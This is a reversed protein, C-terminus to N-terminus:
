RGDGTVESAGIREGGRHRGFERDILDIVEEASASRVDADDVVAGGPNLGDMLARLRAAIRTRQVDDAVVTPLKHELQALEVEVSVAAPPQNLTLGDLMHRTVAVSTPHDFVLTARLRLGSEASLRNRLEVASLSDFGLNKFTQRPDIAEPSAHGLVAAAHGRVFRLVVREREGEPVGALREGLSVSGQVGARRVPPRVLDQLLPVLGGARAQGHLAAADLWVPLVLAEELGWATDLLELAQERALARVGGRAIRALDIEGLRDAMGDAQAWPGWAISTAALGQARRSAALADLFANAAAYNGQGAGGFTGAVSSFLVFARLDMHRTLEHLHWGGDVKPALAREVRGPTLSGLVGDDLVGAAHVVASLPHRVPVEELLEQLQAPDAVDCAAIRVDAGLESLETALASAGQAQLGRRSALLLHRVGHETVLHRAVAAGLGGTGGTILVTGETESTPAPGDQEGAAVGWQSVGAAAARGRDTHVRALRPILVAGGRVAVQSEGCALAEPLAHWSAEEGDVDVLVFRDPNELQASRVLGWVAGGALDSVGEGTRAAVGDRTLVALRSAAFREDALWRQLVDLVRQVNARVRRPVGGDGDLAGGGDEGGGGAVCGTLVIAPVGGGGDASRALSALDVHADLPVGARRLEEELTGRDARPAGEEVDSMREGGGVVAWRIASGSAATAPQVERWDVVYLSERHGGAVAGLQGASAARLTLSEVSAVPAGSEDAVTVSIAEAGVFSLHVRLVAAGTAHLTVGNWSFPLWVQEAGGGEPALPSAALAHMAADLLAPHVGFRAAEALQAEPLAVEAFVEEGRRWAAQLGQFAPGYELGRGSQGDYLGDVAVPEADQPPWVGGAVCPSAEPAAPETPALTGRAHETWEEGTGFGDIAADEPRSHVSLARRGSEDPAEIAVRLQVGREVDLVLPASLTLEEVQRCGLRGGIHLAIELFATAPFLVRGMVVHDALWPHADLSLRGTFLWADEALAVAAGLLPHDASVQGVAGADDGRRGTSGLWYRERQFAYSPLGVRSAGSGEFIRAWDVRVGRVWVGALGALLTQVEGRGARATAVAAFSSEEIGGDGPLGDEGLCEHVMASLVGDPGLELFSGVGRGRASRVGDCFRVTERVHRVWYAPDCLQAASAVEGTVNSVVPTHPEGFAVEAAVRGFEELMDDMRPSHFAHSVRLWRTKAGQARWAEALESVAERDGSFVVSAPGNVAALAVRGEFGTLSELAERESAGVAVMAGGAPLDGMLRGRAAVLRCADALSFVGAVYAAVLEGISHGMVLDPRVGLSEVLRCMALELAFLGCQAHLTGDLREWGPSQGDLAGGAWEGDPPGGRALSVDAEAGPAPDQDDGFVVDRLRCGLQPDLHVCVEDFADRFVAFAKYLERGMGVRQAGQGTFLFAIREGGDAGFAGVGAAVGRVVGAAAEGRALARLGELLGDRDGDLVVARDELAARGALSVGVDIAELGLDGGVFEALRAAQRRLGREGRGSVVWPVVGGGPAGVGVLAEAGAGEGAPSGSAGRDGASDDCPAEELIVHANTGSAGFSSVGARRPEGGREWAVEETLLSVRGSSWDVQTSPEDVHLTRPLRERQLAMVIKIVGAAGSATVTHGINSKVSGLWLPAGERGQGYTALLAQAEIPDGLRTGTGHGEVADVQAPSLGANALAQLIVRQQSPGNPATLGNSAGDQNVASGRVLALVRHGNRRADALPELLLVGMGEGWGVGDAADAYPKCRGDPAQGRQRSFEVFLEPTSLVTVGGTLAMSCEGGRLAQCAMHLAVLASSCATDVSVAPGELGLTYAVRGSTVSSPSGTMGYGALGESGAPAAWLGLGYETRSTGVFVGTSSGRLSSPDIDAHELAEWCGELLLRQQPDMALAERPGIGFFGADFEAVDYLFGGERAYSTGPRALDPDYLRGLDWGRDTPFEGIADRGACVFEWLEEPSRAPGPYRCSMGVIAVPEDAPAGRVAATVRAAPAGRVGGAESVLHEALVVPTPYDFVLTAPLRLGTAAALRNRLEVAALSDFGLDKFARRAPVSEPSPHGLVTAAEGRVLELVVRGREGQPVGALRLALSGGAASRGRRAPTRVLGRLLAPLEGSRARARLAAGDLRVPVMLAENAACAADFLELGEEQPLERLGGRVMRLVDGEELAATMGAARAWPGWALAVAALGQARRHAALADLFANAAAYNGQGPAGFTGAISSFLVFARLDMHRTLEHLHWAANVKPALVRDLQAVTLSGIAGDDLVGAAHVVACLPLEGPVSEILERLQRRDGVDCAAVAVRAGLGSLEAELQRAGPAEGGRRSALVLSRVGCDGVLHRALLAGLGGTGGTILVTGRADPVNRAWPARPGGDADTSRGDPSGTESAPASGAPLPTVGRLRPALAEGVRVALQSEECDLMASLARPLHRASEEGDLDILLVRGPHEAQASRVLGWMAGGALDRIDEGPRTAVAGCTVLGLRAHAFREDALWRQLLELAWGSRERVGIAVASVHGSEWGDADAASKVHGGEWGDADAASEVHGGEWGDVDAASEVLATCDM